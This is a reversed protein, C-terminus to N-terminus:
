NPIILIRSNICAIRLRAPRMGSSMFEVYAQAALMRAQELLARAGFSTIKTRVGAVVLEAAAPDVEVDNVPTGSNRAAALVAAKLANAAITVLTEGTLPKFLIPSGVRSLFASSMMDMVESIVRDEVDSEDGVPLHYGFPNRVAEDRRNPLNITFIVIMNACNFIGGTASQGLGTELVLLFLDGIAARIQPPAHDLDSIEVIAQQKAAIELRGPQNSAVIGRGSGLLQSSFTYHDPISGCDITMHPWGLQEAILLSAQSKGTAPTGELLCRVPQHDPRTLAEQRLRAVLQMIAKEQSLIKGNLYDEFGPNCFTEIMQERVHDSRRAITTNTLGSFTERQSALNTAFSDTSMYSGAGSQQLLIERRVVSSLLREREDKRRGEMVERVRSFVASRDARSIGGCVRATYDVAHNLLLDFPIDLPTHIIVPELPSHTAGQGGNLTEELVSITGTMIVTNRLEAISAYFGRLRADMDYKESTNMALSRVPLIVCGPARQTFEIVRQVSLSAERINGLTPGGAERSVRAILALMFAEHLPYEAALAVPIGATIYELIRQALSLLENSVVLNERLPVIPAIYESVPNYLAELAKDNSTEPLAEQLVRALLELRELQHKLNAFRVMTLATLAIGIEVSLLRDDGSKEVCLHYKAGNKGLESLKEFLLEAPVNATRRVCALRCVLVLVSEKVSGMVSLIGDQSGSKGELSRDNAGITAHIGSTQLLLESVQQLVFRVDSERITIEDVNM